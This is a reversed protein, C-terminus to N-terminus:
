VCYFPVNGVRYHTYEATLNSGDQEVYAYAGDSTDFDKFFKPVEAVNMPFNATVNNRGKTVVKVYHESM